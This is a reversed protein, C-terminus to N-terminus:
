SLFRMLAIVVTIGQKNIVVTKKINSTCGCRIRDTASIWRGQVINKKKKKENEKKAAVYM